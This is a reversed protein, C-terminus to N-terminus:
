QGHRFPVWVRGPNVDDPSPEAEPSVGGDSSVGGDPSLGSDLPQRSDRWARVRVRGAPGGELPLLSLSVEVCDPNRKGPAHESMFLPMQIPGGYWYGPELIMVEGDSSPRPFTHITLSAVPNSIEQTCDWVWDLTVDWGTILRKDFCLSGGVAGILLTGELTEGDYHVDRLELNASGRSMGGREAGIACPSKGTESSPRVQGFPFGRCAMLLLLMISAFLHMKMRM